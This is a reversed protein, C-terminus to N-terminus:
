GQITVILHRRGGSNRLECLYIGQWTVLHCGRSFAPLIIETQFWDFMKM